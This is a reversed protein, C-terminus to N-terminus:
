ARALFDQDFRDYMYKLDLYESILHAEFDVRMDQDREFVVIGTSIIVYQFYAPACNLVRVDFDVRPLIGKELSRAVKSSLKFRQYPALEQFLHIAIDIDHFDDRNPFSGFVYALDIEEFGSLIIRIRELIRNKDMPLGGDAIFGKL